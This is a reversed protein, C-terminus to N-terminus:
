RRDKSNEGCDISVTGVDTSENLHKSPAMESLPVCVSWILGGVPLMLQGRNSAYTPWGGNSVGKGAVVVEVREAGMPLMIQGSPVFPLM